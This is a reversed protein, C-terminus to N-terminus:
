QAYLRFELVCINEAPAYSAMPIRPDLTGLWWLPLKVYIKM